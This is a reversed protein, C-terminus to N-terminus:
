CLEKIRELISRYDEVRVIEEVGFLALVAGTNWFEVYALRNDADDRFTIGVGGVVSAEVRRPRLSHELSLTLFEEVKRLTEPSPKGDYGDWDKSERVCHDLWSRVQEARPRQSM